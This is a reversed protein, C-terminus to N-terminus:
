FLVYKRYQYINFVVHYDNNDNNNHDKFYTMPGIIDNNVSKYHNLGIIFLLFFTWLLAVNIQTPTRSHINM